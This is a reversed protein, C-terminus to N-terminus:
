HNTKNKLLLVKIKKITFDVAISVLLSFLLTYVGFLLLGPLGLSMFMDNIIGAELYSKIFPFHFLYVFFTRRGLYEILSNIKESFNMLHDICLFLTFFGIAQLFVPLMCYEYFHEFYTINALVGFYYALLFSIISSGFYLFFAFFATIKKKFFHPHQFQFVSFEYGILIYLFYESPLVSPVVIVGKFDPIITCITPLIIYLIFALAMIVWRIINEEKKIVCIYRLLPFWIYFRLLTFVYWLYFSNKAGASFKVLHSMLDRWDISFHVICDIFTARNEIFNDFIQILLLTVIIPIIISSFVNKLIEHTQKQSRFAFFGTIMFFIPVCCRTFSEMFLTDIAIIGDPMRFWMFIHILVVFFSCLVRLLEISLIRKQM